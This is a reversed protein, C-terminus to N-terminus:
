NREVAEEPFRAFNANGEYLATEGILQILRRSFTASSQACLSQFPTDWQFRM